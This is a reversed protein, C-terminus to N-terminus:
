KLLTTPEPVVSKYSKIWGSCQRIVNDLHRICMEFNNFGHFAKVEKSLHVIVKMEELLNSLEGLLERKDTVNNTKIILVVIKHSLIRLETGLTYKHYHSFGTVIQEVYIALDIAAKYIKLHEYRAM